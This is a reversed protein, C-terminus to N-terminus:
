HTFLDELRVSAWLYFRTALLEIPKAIIANQIDSSVAALMRDAVRDADLGNKINTDIKGFPKGDPGLANCTIATRVSGPYLNLIRLNARNEELQFCNFYAAAAVKSASYSARLRTPKMAAISLTNVITGASGTNSRLIPACARALAVPALFNVTMVKSVHQVDLDMASARTTIGANNFLYDLRGYFQCANQAVDQLQASDWTLDLPLIRVDSSPCPLSKSLRKLMTEDRGSLILIAGRKALLKALSTGIGGTAGTIWAVKGRFKQDDISASLTHLDCDATFFHIVKFICFIMATVALALAGATLWPIHM